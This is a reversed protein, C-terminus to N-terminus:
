KLLINKRFDNTFLLFDAIQFFIDFKEFKFPSSFTEKEEKNKNYHALRHFPLTFLNMFGFNM